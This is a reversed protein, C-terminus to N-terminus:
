AQMMWILSGILAVIIYLIYVSLHGKQFRRQAMFHRIAEETGQPLWREGVWDMFQVDQTSKTPFLPRIRRFRQKMGPLIEAWERSFSFASYQMRPNGKTYGCDWTPPQDAAAKIKQIWLYALSSILILLLSLLSMLHLDSRVAGNLHGASGPAFIHIIRDLAPMLACAGLSMGLCLSALLAMPYFLRPPADHIPHTFPQRPNGLFIFAFFRAFAIVALGGTMSLAFIALFATWTGSQMLSAFFARYLMWESVFGNFPPLASVALVGPLLVMATKPMLKALGGLAEINRTHTTHLVTGAGFFLLGKFVAHNWIHLIAGGLGLATLLPMKNHRGVFAMGVGMLIIGINEISSYALIRKYDKQALACVVGYLASACGVILLTAGMWGPTPMLSGMRLIGYIGAKIMVASLIASVHSPAHAHAEPLWFHLPFAGAKFLFGM